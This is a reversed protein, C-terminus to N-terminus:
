KATVKWLVGFRTAKVLIRKSGLSLSSIQTIFASPLLGARSVVPCKSSLGVQDGSSSHIAKSRLWGGAGNM